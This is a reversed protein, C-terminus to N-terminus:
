FQPMTGKRWIKFQDDPASTRACRAVPASPHSALASAATWICTIGQSTQHTNPQGQVPQSQGAQIVDYTMKATHCDVKGAATNLPGYDYTEGSCSRPAPDTQRQNLTVSTLYGRLRAYDSSARFEAAARELQECSPSAGTVRVHKQFAARVFKGLGPAEVLDATPDGAMHLRGVITM